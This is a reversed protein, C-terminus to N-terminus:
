GGEAGEPAHTPVNPLARDHREIWESAAPWGLDDRLNVMIARADDLLDRTTATPHTVDNEPPHEGCGARTNLDMITRNAFRLAERAEDRERRLRQNEATLKEAEEHHMRYKDHRADEVAVAMWQANQDVDNPM